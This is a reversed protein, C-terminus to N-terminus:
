ENIRTTPLLPFLILLGAGLLLFSLGAKVFAPCDALPVRAYIGWQIGLGLLVSVLAGFCMSLCIEFYTPVFRKWGPRRSTSAPYALVFTTMMGVPVVLRASTETRLM